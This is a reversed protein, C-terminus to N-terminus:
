KKDQKEMEKSFGQRSVEIGRNGSPPPPLHYMSPQRDSPSCHTHPPSACVVVYCSGILRKMKLVVSKWEKDGM